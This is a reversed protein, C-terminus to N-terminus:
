PILFRQCVIPVLFNCISKKTYLAEHRWLYCVSKQGNKSLHLSFRDLMEKTTSLQLLTKSKLAASGRWKKDFRIQHFNTKFLLLQLMILCKSKGKQRCVFLGVFVYTPLYKELSTKIPVKSLVISYSFSFHSYVYFKHARVRFVYWLKSFQLFMQDTTSHHLASPAAKVFPYTNNNGFIQCGREKICLVTDGVNRTSFQCFLSTELLVNTLFQHYINSM